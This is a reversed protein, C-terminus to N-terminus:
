AVSKAGKELFSRIINTNSVDIELLFIIHDIKSNKSSFVWPFFFQVYDPIDM